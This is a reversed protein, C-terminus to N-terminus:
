DYDIISFNGKTIINGKFLILFFLMSYKLIFLTIHKFEIYQINQQKVKVEESEIM